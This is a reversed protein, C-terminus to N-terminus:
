FYYIGIDALCEYLIIHMIYMLIIIGHKFLINYNFIHSKYHGIDRQAITLEDEEIKLCKKKNSEV